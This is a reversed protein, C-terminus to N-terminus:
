GGPPADVDADSGGGTPAPRVLAVGFGVAVGAVAAMVAAAWWGGALGVLGLSMGAVVLGSGAPRSRRAWCHPAGLLLAGGLGLLAVGLPGTARRPGWDLTPVREGDAGELQVVSGDWLYATAPGGELGRSDLVTVSTDPRRPRTLTWLDAGGRGEHRDFDLTGPSARLCGDAPESEACVPARTMAFGTALDSGGQFTMAVGLLLLLGAAITRLRM